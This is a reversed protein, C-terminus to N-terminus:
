RDAYIRFSSKVKERRLRGEDALQRLLEQLTRRNEGPFRRYLETQLIGPEAQALFVLQTALSSVIAREQGGSDGASGSKIEEPEPPDPSKKQEDRIEQEMGQLRRYCYYGGAAAGAAVIWSFVGM